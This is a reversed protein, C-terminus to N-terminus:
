LEKLATKIKDKLKKDTAKTLGKQLSQQAKEHYGLFRSYILGIYYEAEALSPNIRIADQLREIAQEYQKSGKQSILYFMTKGLGLYGEYHEPFDRIMFSYKQEAVEYWQMKIYLRAQIKRFDLDTPFNALYYEVLDVAEKYRGQEDLITVLVKLAHAKNPTIDLIKRFYLEASHNHGRQRNIEAVQQLVDVRDPSLRLLEEFWYEAKRLKGLEYYAKGLNYLVPENKQGAKNARKYYRIAKRPKGALFLMTGRNNYVAQSKKGSRAIMKFIDDAKDPKGMHYYLVGLNINVEIMQPNEEQALLLMQWSKEYWELDFYTHALNMIVSIDAPDIRHASELIRIAEMVRGSSRYANGLLSYYTLQNPSYVILRNFIDASMEFQGSLLYAQGLLFDTELDSPGIALAKTLMAVARQYEGELIHEKGLATIGTATQRLLNRNNAIFERAEAPTAHDCLYHARWAAIVPDNKSRKVARAFLEEAESFKRNKAYLQALRAAALGSTEDESESFSFASIAAGHEHHLAYNYGALYTAFAQDDTFSREGILTVLEPPLDANVFVLTELILKETIEFVSIGKHLIVEKRPVRDKLHILKLRIFVSDGKVKYSGGVAADWKWRKQHSLTISDSSFIDTTSDLDFLFSPEWIQIDNRYLMKRSFRESYCNSIWDFRPDDNLNNLPFLVFTVRAWLTFVLCLLVVFSKKGIKRVHM